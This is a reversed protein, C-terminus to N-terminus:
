SLYERLHGHREQHTRMRKEKRRAVRSELCRGHLPIGLIHIETTCTSTIRCWLEVHHLTNTMQEPLHHSALQYGGCHCFLHPLELQLYACGKTLATKFHQHYHQIYYRAPAQFSVRHSEARMASPHKSTSVRHCVPYRHRAPPIAMDSNWRDALSHLSCSLVGSARSAM